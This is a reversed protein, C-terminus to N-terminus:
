STSPNYEGQRQDAARNYRLQDAGKIECIGFAPKRMVHSMKIFQFLFPTFSDVTQEKLDSNIKQKKTKGVRGVWKKQFNFFFFVCM